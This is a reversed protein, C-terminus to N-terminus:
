LLGILKRHSEDGKGESVLTDLKDALEAEVQLSVAASSMVAHGAGAAGAVATCCDSLVLPAAPLPPTVQKFNGNRRQEWDIMDHLIPIMINRVEDQPVLTVGLFAGITGPIFHIKDEGPHWFM